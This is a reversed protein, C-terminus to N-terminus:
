FWLGDGDQGYAKLTINFEIKRPAGDTLFHTKTEEINTIVWRSWVWGMGDVLLFPQGNKAFERMLDIQRLGGRFHPYIVGSLQITEAGPGMFQLSPYRGIRDVQEWRFEASRTLKQYSTQGIGFRLAGLAMMVLDLMFVGM